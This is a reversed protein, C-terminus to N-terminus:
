HKTMFEASVAASEMSDRPCVDQEVIHWIVGSKAAAAFIEPWPLIGAGLEAFARSRSDRMDKLHLTPCRGSYKNIFTVPNLEAYRIWFVDLQPSLNEPKATKFVIDLAYEDDFRKFEGAHNHYSLQIGAERLVAGSADMAEACAIWGACDTVKNPDIYSVVAHKAGYLKAIDAIKRPDAIVEDYTFHMSCVKLSAKDLQKQFAELTLGYSGATEVYNYGMRKIKDLTNPVDKELHGRVTYLQLAFKLKSM